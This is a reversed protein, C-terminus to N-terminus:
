PILQLALYPTNQIPQPLINSFTFPPCSQFTLTIDEVLAVQLCLVQFLALTQSLQSNSPLFHCHCPSFVTRPSGFILKKSEHTLLEATALTNLCPAWEQITHDLKIQYTNLPCLPLDWNTVQSGSLMDRRKQLMPLSPCTLEKIYLQPRSSLRNFSVLLSPLPCLSSTM